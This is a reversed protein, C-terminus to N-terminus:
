CSYSAHILRADPRVPGSLAHGTRADYQTGHWQCTFLDDDLVLPGRHHMCVNIFARPEWEGDRRPGGEGLLDASVSESERIDIVPILPHRM